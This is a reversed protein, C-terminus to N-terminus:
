SNVRKLQRYVLLASIGGGAIIGIIMLVPSTHWQSDLYLGLMTLGVSPIFMRWTTNAIDSLLLVAASKAPPQGRRETQDSRDPADNPQKSM